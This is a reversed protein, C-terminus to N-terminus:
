FGIWARFRAPLGTCRLIGSLADRKETLSLSAECSSEATGSRNPDRKIPVRTFSITLTEGVLVGQVTGSGYGGDGSFQRGDASWIVKRASFAPLQMLLEEGKADGPLHGISINFVNGGSLRKQIVLGRTVRDSSALGCSEAQARTIPNTSGLAEMVSTATSLGGCEDAAAPQVAAAVFVAIVWIVSFGIRPM